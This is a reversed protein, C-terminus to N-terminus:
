NERFSYNNFSDYSVKLREMITEYGLVEVVTTDQGSSDSIDFVPSYTTVGSKLQQWNKQFQLGVPNQYILCTRLSDYENVVRNVVGILSDLAEIDDFTHSALVYCFNLIILTDHANNMEVYSSIYYPLKNYDSVQHFSNFFPDRMEDESFNNIKMAMNLMAQSRDVGIYTIDCQKAAASFAIGSTLPGCGIDIFVVKKVIQPLLYKTFIHYSSYLHMPMHYRCYLLVKDTPSLGNFPMDFDTRGQELIIKRHYEAEKNKVEVEWAQTQPHNNFPQLVLEDFLNKLRESPRYNNVNYCHIYSM